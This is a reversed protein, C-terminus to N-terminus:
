SALKERVLRRTFALVVKVQEADFENWLAHTASTRLGAASVAEKAELRTLQNAAKLAQILPDLTKGTHSIGHVDCIRRITDEFVVGAVVGAPDKRSESLYADAHDLLDDYTESSVKREVSGLLGREVDVLLQRMLAVLSRVIGHASQSMSARDDRLRRAQVLYSSNPMSACIMELLHSAASIWGICAAVAEGDILVDYERDIRMLAPAQDILERMRAEIDASARM